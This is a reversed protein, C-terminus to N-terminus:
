IHRHLDDESGSEPEDHLPEQEWGMQEAERRTVNLHVTDHEVNAIASVPVYLDPAFVSRYTLIYSHGVHKITGLRRDDNGVVDWGVRFDTMRM